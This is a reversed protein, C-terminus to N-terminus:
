ATKAPLMDGGGGGGWIFVASWLVMILSFSPHCKFERFQHWGTWSSELRKVCGAGQFVIFESVGGHHTVCDEPCEDM